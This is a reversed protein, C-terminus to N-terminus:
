VPQKSRDFIKVGLEEELKQIQMSLTPQTVFCAAAATSFHRHTDLAVIYELQVLTM